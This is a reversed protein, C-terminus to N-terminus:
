FDTSIPTLDQVTINPQEFQKKFKRDKSIMVRTINARRSISSYTLGM